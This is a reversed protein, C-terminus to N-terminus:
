VKSAAGVNVGRLKIIRGKDDQFHKGSISLNGATPTYVTLESAM